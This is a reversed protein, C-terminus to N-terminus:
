EDSNEEKKVIGKQEGEEVKRGRGRARKNRNRQLKRHISKKRLNYNGFSESDEKEEIM